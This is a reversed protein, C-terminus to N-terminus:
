ADRAESGIRMATNKNRTGKTSECPEFRIRHSKKNKPTGLKTTQPVVPFRQRVWGDGPPAAGLSPPAGFRRPPPTGFPAAPLASLKPPAVDLHRRFFFFFCCGPPIWTFFCRRPITCSYVSRVLKTKLWMSASESDQFAIKREVPRNSEM